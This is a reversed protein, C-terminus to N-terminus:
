LTSKGSGSEGTISVFDGSKVTFSLSHLIERGFSKTVESVIIDSM